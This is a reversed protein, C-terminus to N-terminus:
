ASLYVHVSLRSFWFKSYDATLFYSSKTTAELIAALLEHIHVNLIKLSFAM